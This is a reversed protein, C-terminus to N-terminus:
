CIMGRRSLIMPCYCASNFGIFSTLRSSMSRSLGPLREATNCLEDLSMTRTMVGGVKLDSALHKLYGEDDTYTILCFLQGIKEETTMGAVTTQVWNIDSDSLCFPKTKLDLM